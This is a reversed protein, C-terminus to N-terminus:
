GLPLEVGLRERLGREGADTIRLARSRPLREVWGQELLWSALARGVAGSLHHAQETWDVCYRLPLDASPDGDQPVAVGLGLLRARGEPTLRYQVDHGPASLRDERAQDPHHRGDGGVVLRQDLLARFLGVGLRGAIHDYCTRARRVAHARTGERMSRVPAAPALRGLMEIAEAVHSGALQYYRFRGQQRVDILGADLLRALHGSATSAAIGAEAALATAPLARGDALALLIRSRAPESLVAGLAALDM